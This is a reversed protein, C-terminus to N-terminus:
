YRGIQDGDHPKLRNDFKYRARTKTKKGATRVSSTFEKALAMGDKNLRDAHGGSMERVEQIKRVSQTSPPKKGRRAKEISNKQPKPNTWPHAATGGALRHEGVLKVMDPHPRAQMAFNQPVLDM